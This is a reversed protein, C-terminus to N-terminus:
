IRWGESPERRIKWGFAELGLRCEDVGHGIGPTKGTRAAADRPNTGVEACSYNSGSDATLYTNGCLRFDLGVALRYVATIFCWDIRSTPRDQAFRTGPVGIRLGPGTAIPGLSIQQKISQAIEEPTHEVGIPEVGSSLTLGAKKAHLITQIRTEPPIQTIVGEGMRVAHYIADFGSAKLKLAQEYNFDDINAVLPLEPRIVERVSAGIECFRDFDYNATAMLYLLNVGAQDYSRAYGIIEDKTMELRSSRLGNCAAFSCFECNRPCSSGDIGIQAHIEAIGGSARRALLWAARRIYSAEDSYPNMQLLAVIEPEELGGGDLAKETIAKIRLDSGKFTLKGREAEQIIIRSNLRLFPSVAKIATMASSKRESGLAKEAIKRDISEKMNQKTPMLNGEM